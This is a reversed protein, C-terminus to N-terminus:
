KLVLRYYILLLLLCNGFIRSIRSYLVSLVSGLNTGFRPILIIMKEWSTYNQLRTTSLIRRGDEADRWSIFLLKEKRVQRYVYLVFILFSDFDSFYICEVYYISVHCRVFFSPIFFTAGSLSVVIKTRADIFFYVSPM